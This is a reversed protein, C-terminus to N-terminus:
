VTYVVGSTQTLFAGFGTPPPPPPPPPPTSYLSNIEHNFTKTSKPCKTPFGETSQVNKVNVSIGLFNKQRIVFLNRYQNPRGQQKHTNTLHLSKALHGLNKTCLM